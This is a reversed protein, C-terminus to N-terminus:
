RCGFEGRLKVAEDALAVDGATDRVVARAKLFDCWQQQVQTVHKHTENDDHTHVLFGAVVTVIVFVIVAALLWTFRRQARRWDTLEARHISQAEIRQALEEAEEARRELMETRAQVARAETQLTRLNELLDEKTQLRRNIVALQAKLVGIDHRLRSVTEQLERIIDEADM